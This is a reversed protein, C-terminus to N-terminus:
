FNFTGLSTTAFPLQGKFAAPLKHKKVVLQTWFFNDLVLCWYVFNKINILM